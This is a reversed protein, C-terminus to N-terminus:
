FPIKGSQLITTSNGSILMAAKDPQQKIEYEEM